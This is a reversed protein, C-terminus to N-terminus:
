YKDGVAWTENVRMEITDSIVIKENIRGKTCYHRGYIKKKENKHVEAIDSWVWNKTKAYKILTTGM